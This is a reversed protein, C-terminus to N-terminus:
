NEAIKYLKLNKSGSVFQIAGQNELRRLFHKAVSLRVDLRSAVAYPTLAKMKKLDDIVEKSRPNPSFIGAVKKRSTESRDEKRGRERAQTRQMQKLSLKKKGGM